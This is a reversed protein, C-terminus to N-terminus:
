SRETWARPAMQALNSARRYPALAALIDSPVDEFNVHEIVLLPFREILDPQLWLLEMAEPEFTVGIDKLM